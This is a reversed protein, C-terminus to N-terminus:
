SLITQKWYSDTTSGNDYTDYNNDSNLLKFFRKNMKQKMNKTDNFDKKAKKNVRLKKVTSFETLDEGVRSYSLSKNRFNVLWSLM